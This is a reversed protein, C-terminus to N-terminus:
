KPDVMAGVGMLASKTPLSIAAARGGPLITGQDINFYDVDNADLLPDILEHDLVTIIKQGKVTMLCRFLQSIHDTDLESTLDDFLYICKKELM